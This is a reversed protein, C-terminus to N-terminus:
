PPNLNVNHSYMTIEKGIYDLVKSEKNVSEYAIKYFNLMHEQFINCNASWLPNIYVTGGGM